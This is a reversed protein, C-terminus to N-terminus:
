EKRKRLIFLVSIIALFVFFLNTEPLGSVSEKDKKVTFYAYTKLTNGTPGGGISFFEEVEITIVYDGPKLKASSFDHELLFSAKDFAEINDKIEDDIIASDSVTTTVEYKVEANSNNRVTLNVNVKGEGYIAQPFIELEALSITNITSFVTLTESEIVVSDNSGDDIVVTFFYDGPTLGSLEYYSNTISCKPICDTPGAPGEWNLDFNLPDSEPDFADWEIRYSSGYVSSHVAPSTFDGVPSNNALCNITVVSSPIPVQDSSLRLQYTGTKSCKVTIPFEISNAPPISVVNYTKDPPVAELGKNAPQYISDPIREFSAGGSANDYEFTLNLECPKLTTMDALQANIIFAEGQAYTKDDVPNAPDIRFSIVSTCPNTINIEESGFAVMGAQNNVMKFDQAIWDQSRVSDSIRVEDIIGEFPYSTGQAFGINLERTNQVNFGSESSIGTTGDLIGDVFISIDSDRDYVVTIYHWTDDDLGPTSWAAYTSGAAAGFYADVFGTNSIRFGYGDRGGYNERKNIVERWKGTAPTKIWASITWNSLGMDLLDVDGFDIYDDTGDFDLSGGIKGAVQDGATMTGFSTGNSSNSTSDNIQPAAGSPDENLHWVGMFDSTWVGFPNESSSAASNNYYVAITKGAPPLSPIKVWVFAKTADYSELDYELLVSAPDGCPANYFRLDDFGAQMAGAVLDVEIYAPFDTFSSATANSITIERCNPFLPDPWAFASAAFLVLFFLVFKKM